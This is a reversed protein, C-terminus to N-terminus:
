TEIIKFCYGIFLGSEIVGVIQKLEKELGEDIKEFWADLIVNGNDTILEKNEAQASKRIEMKIAGLQKVKEKVYNIAQKDCEIPIPHKKGLKEVWKTKDILIYNETSNVMNLKERFLAAGMGKIMWYNNDVEDAGDFCWDLKSDKLEVTPIELEHCLEEIIKSTPVAQISLNEEKVRKAIEIVTLYSTSGSGFGITEGNKVRGAMKKAVKRKEEKNTINEKWDFEEM